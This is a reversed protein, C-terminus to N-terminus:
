FLMRQNNHLKQLQLIRPPPKLLLLEVLATVLLQRVHPEMPIIQRLQRTIIIAMTLGREM